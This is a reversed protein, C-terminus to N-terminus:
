TLNLQAHLKWQEHFTFYHFFIFCDYTTNTRSIFTLIDVMTPMKVNILLIFNMSLQTSCSFIIVRSGPLTSQKWNGIALVFM